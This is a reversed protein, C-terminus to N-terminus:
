PPDQQGSDPFFAAHSTEDFFSITEIESFPIVKAWDEIVLSRAYGPSTRSEVEALFKERLELERHLDELDSHKGLAKAKTILDKILVERSRVRWIEFAPYGLKEEFKLTDKNRTASFMPIIELHGDTGKLGPPLRLIAGCYM